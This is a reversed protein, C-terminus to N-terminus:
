SKQKAAVIEQSVQATAQVIIEHEVQHIKTQLMELTDGEVCEVERVIIPAGRDVEAIVYHVM